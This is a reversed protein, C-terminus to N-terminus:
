SEGRSVVGEILISVTSLALPLWLWPSIILYSLALFLGVWVSLCAPCNFMKGLENDAQRKGYEDYYIGLRQRLYAFVAYPGDEAYLLSTIRWTAFALLTIDIIQKM